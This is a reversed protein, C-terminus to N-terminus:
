IKMIVCWRGVVREVGCKGKSKGRWGKKEGRERWFEGITCYRSKGEGIFLREDRGFNGLRREDHWRASIKLMIVYNERDM